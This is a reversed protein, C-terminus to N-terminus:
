YRGYIKSIERSRRREATLDVGLAVAPDTQMTCFSCFKCSPSIPRIKSLRLKIICNIMLSKVFVVFTIAIRIPKLVRILIHKAAILCKKDAM